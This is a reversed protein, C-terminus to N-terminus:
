GPRQRCIHGVDYWDDARSGDVVQRGHVVGDDLHVRGIRARAGLRHRVVDGRRELPLEHLDVPQLQDGRLARLPVHM